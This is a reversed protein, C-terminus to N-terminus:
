NALESATQNLGHRTAAQSKVVPSKSSVIIWAHLPFRMTAVNANCVVILAYKDGRAIRSGVFRQTLLTEDASADSIACFCM